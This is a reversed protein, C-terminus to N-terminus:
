KQGKYMFLAGEHRKKLKVKEIATIKHIFLIRGSRNFM